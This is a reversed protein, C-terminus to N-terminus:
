TILIQYQSVAHVLVPSRWLGGKARRAAFDGVAFSKKQIGGLRAMLPEWFVYFLLAVQMCRRGALAYAV